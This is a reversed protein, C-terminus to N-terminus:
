TMFKKENEENKNSLQSMLCSFLFFNSDEALPREYRNVTFRRNVLTLAEGQSSQPIRVTYVFFLILNLALVLYPREYSLGIM